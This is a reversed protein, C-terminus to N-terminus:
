RAAAAVINGVVVPFADAIRRGVTADWVKALPGTFRVRHTVVSRGEAAADLQHELTMTAGLFTSAIDFRRGLMDVRVTKMTLRAGRKPRFSGVSGVAIPGNFKARLVQPHDVPWWETNTWREWVVNPDVSAEQSYERM